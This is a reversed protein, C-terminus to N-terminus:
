IRDGAVARRFTFRLVTAYLNRQTWNLLRM